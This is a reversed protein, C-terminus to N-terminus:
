TPNILDKRRAFIEKQMDLLDKEKENLRDVQALNSIITEKIKQYSKIDTQIKQLEDEREKTYIRGSVIKSENNLQAIKKDLSELIEKIENRQSSNFEVQNINKPKELLVLSSHSEILKLFQDFTQNALKKEILLLGIENFLKKQEELYMILDTFVEDKKQEETIKFTLELLKQYSELASSAQKENTKSLLYFNEQEKKALKLQNNLEEIKQYYDGRIEEVKRIPRDFAEYLKKQLLQRKENEESLSRIFIVLQLRQLSTTLDGWPTMSTGPVGYKISRLLRMDDRVNLWDLNTLMRPKADQMIGARAGSGDAEAGHCVACNLEFFLHGSKINNETYYKKKIFYSNKEISGEKNPIVDFIDQEEKVSSIFTKNAVIANNYNFSLSVAQDLKNENGENKLEKLVDEPNYNWKPIEQMSRNSSGPLTSFIWNVIQDIEPKTLVPTSDKVMKDQAVEGLPPMPTGKVGHTISDAIREKTYNKLFENSRLNKPIPYIWESVPGNGELFEGHCQACHIQYAKQPNFGFNEWVLREADKNKQGIVDLMYTLAYFKTTDFPFVPMISRPIHSTPKYFHEMLWEDSRYVGSWSPKPGILRGLGYEQVYIMLLRHITDQWDKWEKKINEKETNTEAKSLLTEYYFDKSRSAFLFDTYYSGIVGPHKEEIRELLANQRVNNIIRQDIEKKNKEVITILDSGIINEPILQSFWEKENYIKKFDKQGELEIAFGVNSEFGKLRHCAACGETAYVTMSYDLDQILSPNIPKEIASKAGGEWEMVKKKYEVPSIAKSEGVQALLFTMLPELTSHDLRYNPMTSSKLDAQPWVISEKIYWPYSKGINTLEPGVGGRAFGAIRHCAYCAQSLYLNKGDQYTKMLVDVDTEIQGITEQDNVFPANAHKIMEKELNIAATKQILTGQFSQNVMLDNILKKLDGENNQKSMEELNSTNGAMQLLQDQLDELVKQRQLSTEKNKTFSYNSVKELYKKQNVFAKRVEEPLQYDNIKLNLENITENLGKTEVSNRLNKLDLFAKLEENLSKEGKEYKKVQTNMLSSQKAQSGQLLEQSSQHCQACKAQVLNGILIPTTQFLLEHGPKHNFMKAFPPDNLLDEETFRPSPGMYEIEYHDDFVPGHAKETTLGRGNGSHCSTCGYEELPHFEFPRTEAGILPHMILVKELDYSLEGVKVTKLDKLKKALDQRKAVERENGESKLQNIVKVDELEAIKQELKAWVYDDNPIKQPIGDVNFITNGNIDKAIKTPSFHPFEMAVHCSTCRDILAPGKDEREIVIQKIGFTFPPPPEHTYTSRFEELEVYRNQYIKYEPFFERWFFIGFLISSVIGLLILAIQYKEGRM